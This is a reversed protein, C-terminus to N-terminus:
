ELYGFDLYRSDGTYYLVSVIPVQPGTLYVLFVTFTSCMCSLYILAALAFWVLFESGLFCVYVSLESIKLYM